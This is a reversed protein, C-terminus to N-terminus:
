KEIGEYEARLEFLGDYLYKVFKTPVQEFKKLMDLSYYIKQSAGDDLTSMFDLFYNKYASITREMM